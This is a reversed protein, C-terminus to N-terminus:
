GAVIKQLKAVLTARPEEGDTHQEVYLAAQARVAANTPDENVWDLVKERTAAQGTPVQGRLQLETPQNAAPDPNAAPDVAGNTGDTQVGAVESTTLGGGQGAAEADARTGGAIPAAQQPSGDADPAPTTAVQVGSDVAANMDRAAQKAAAEPDDDASKWRDRATALVAYVSADDAFQGAQQNALFRDYHDLNQHDERLRAMEADTAGVQRLREELKDPLGASEAQPDVRDGDKPLNKAQEKLNADAAAEVTEAHTKAEDKTM